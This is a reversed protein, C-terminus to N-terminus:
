LLLMFEGPMKFIERESATPHGVKKEADTSGIFNREMNSSVYFDQPELDTVTWYNQWDWAQLRFAFQFTLVVISSLRPVM